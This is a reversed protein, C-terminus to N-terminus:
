GNEIEVEVKPRLIGDVSGDFTIRRCTVRDEQDQIATYIDRREIIKAITMPKHLADTKVGIDRAFPVSEADTTLITKVDQLIERLSDEPMLEIREMPDGTILEKM